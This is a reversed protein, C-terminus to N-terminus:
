GKSHWSCPKLAASPRHQLLTSPLQRPCHIPATLLAAIAREQGDTGMPKSTVVTSFACGIAAAVQLGLVCATNSMCLSGAEHDLSCLMGM